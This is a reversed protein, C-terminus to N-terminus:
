RVPLVVSSPYAPGHLMRMQGVSNLLSTVPTTTSPTNATGITLRISHGAKFVQSTPYIEVVYREPKGPTVAEQSERTFPHWPRIVLGDPGITSRSRDVARQSALLFGATVQTSEGSPAVDSLVAVLTGDSSTLEAWLDATILGTVETDRGLPPTTYTLSSAEYTRNDTECPGLAVLGATWQASLRSCPSSVPLLPATDAGAAAPPAGGLSHGAGLYYRTYRTGPAPWQDLAQWRDAGMTYLNVSHLRDTANSEGKVWRDFWRAMVEDEPGIGQAAWADPDPNGHYNPTMWLVRRRSNVLREWLLPEGRQFIDWWGGTLAVPITLKRIREIPSRLRYFPGDYASDGGLASDVIKGAAFSANDPLHQPSLVQVLGLWLPIFGSDVAGGHFTVDRYADAMPVDAWVAQVARPKGAAVREADKEAVLLSTIAMYSTGDTAVKGDSWGQAQIWDLLEGYDQQTREGWSDWAGESAGTGRDDLVMIAYGEDLLKANAAVIGASTSCQGPAAAADKNYGTVTLATPVRGGGASPLFVNARLTVGDSMRIPVNCMSVPDASAAPAAWLAALAAFVIAMKGAM